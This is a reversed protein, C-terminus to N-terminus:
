TGYDKVVPLKQSVPKDLLGGQWAVGQRVVRGERTVVSDRMNCQAERTSAPQQMAEDRTAGVDRERRSTTSDSGRKGCRWREQQVVAERIV